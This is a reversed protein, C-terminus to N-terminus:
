RVQKYGGMSIDALILQWTCKTCKELIDWHGPKKPCRVERIDEGCVPCINVNVCDIIYLERDLARNSERKLKEVKEKIDENIEIDFISERKLGTANFAKLDIEFQEKMKARRKNGWM